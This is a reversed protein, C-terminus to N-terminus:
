RAVTYCDKHYYRIHKMHKMFIGLESDVTLLSPEFGMRPLLFCPQLLGQKLHEAQQIFYSGTKYFSTRLQLFLFFGSPSVMRGSSIREM